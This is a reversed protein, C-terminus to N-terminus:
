GGNDSECPAVCTVLTGGGAADAVTLRGDIIRARHKMIGMGMGGVATAETHRGVGNDHVSLTVRGPDQCNLYVVIRNARSHKVANTVAEQAIRYMQILSGNSCCACSRDQSFEIAIGSSEALRRTLL